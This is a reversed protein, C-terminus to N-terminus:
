PPNAGGPQRWDAVRVEAPNGAAFCYAPLRSIVVSNPGVIVGPEITVGKMVQSGSGIRAGAGISIPRMDRETLPANAARLDAEKPHGDNDSLRCDDGIVVNEAILLEQNVSLTCNDGITVDDGIRLRPRDLFRGSFVMFRRGLRVREGIVIECHGLVYPLDIMAMDSGARACRSRFLPEVYLFVCLRTVKDAVFQHVRYAFALGPMLFVPIPISGSNFVFRAVSRLARYVPSDGRKLKLLFGDMGRGNYRGTRRSEAFPIEKEM